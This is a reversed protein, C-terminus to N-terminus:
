GFNMTTQIFCAALPPKSRSTSGTARPRIRIRVGGRPCSMEAESKWQRRLPHLAISGHDKQDHSHLAHAAGRISHPRRAIQERRKADAHTKKKSPIKKANEIKPVSKQKKEDQNTGNMRKKIMQMSGM